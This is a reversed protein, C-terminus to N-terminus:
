ASPIAANMIFQYFWDTPAVDTFQATGLPALTRKSALATMTVAEARTVQRDPKFTKDEYGSIINNQVAITIYTRGWHTGIDTLSVNVSNNPALAYAKNIIVAFEARTIGNYPKFTNDEYGSIIGRSTCFNVANASSFDTPMDTLKLASEYTKGEGMLNYVMKVVDLRTMPINPAFSYNGVGETYPAEARVEPVVVVVFSDSGTVTHTFGTSELKYNAPLKLDEANIVTGTACTIDESGIVTGDSTRYSIKILVDQSTIFEKVLSYNYGQSTRAYARVYYKTNPSLNILKVEYNGSGTTDATRFDSNNITPVTQSSSYVAGRETVNYYIDNSITARVTATSEGIDVIENVTAYSNEETVFTRVSGYTYGNITNYYARVYYTTRPTLGTLSVTYEGPENREHAAYLSNSIDPMTNVASYVVGRGRVTYDPIGPIRGGVTASTNTIETAVLTEISDENQTKIKRGEDASYYTGTNTKVYARVYYETNKELNEVTVSIEGAIAGAGSNKDANVVIVNVGDIAPKTPNVPNTAKSLVVGREILTNVGQTPVYITFQASQSGVFDESQLTVYAGQQALNVATVAGYARGYANAAYARFYYTGATYNPIAVSAEFIANQTRFTGKIAPSNEFTPTNNSNSYVFGYDTLASNGLNTVTGQAYIANGSRYATDTTVTPAGASTASANHTYMPSYAYKTAGASDRYSVFAKIYYRATTLNLIGARIIGGSGYTNYAIQTNAGGVVPNTDTSSYVIGQEGLLMVTSGATYKAEVAAAAGLVSTVTLDYVSVDAGSAATTFNTVAQAVYTQSAGYYFQARAYYTTNPLLGTVPVQKVNGTYSTITLPSVIDRFDSQTSIDLYAQDYYENAGLNITVTALASNGTIDSFGVTATAASVQFQLASVSVIFVLLASILKKIKHVSFM